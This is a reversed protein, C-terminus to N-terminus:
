PPTVLSGVDLGAIFDNEVDLGFAPTGSVSVVVYNLLVGGPKLNMAARGIVAIVIPPPLVGSIAIIMTMNQNDQVVLLASPYTKILFTNLANQAGIVTGDWNNAAITAYLLIRYVQDNLVVIGDSPDFQGQLYGEDLGLGAVDLSFYLDTLPVDVNRSVGVWKGVIDLQTSVAVDIDFISPMSLLVNQSDVAPQLAALVSATFNPQGEHEPTIYDLYQDIVVQDVIIPPQAM